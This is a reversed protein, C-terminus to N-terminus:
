SVNQILGLVLMGSTPIELIWGPQNCTLWVLGVDNQQIPGM